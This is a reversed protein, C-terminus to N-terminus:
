RDPSGSKALVEAVSIANPNGRAQEATLLSIRGAASYYMKQTSPTNPDMYANLNGAGRDSSRRNADSLQNLNFQTETQRQAGTGQADFVFYAYGAAQALQAARLKMNDQARQANNDTYLVGYHSADIKSDVYGYGTTDATRPQFPLVEAACGALFGAILVAGALRLHRNLGLITRM